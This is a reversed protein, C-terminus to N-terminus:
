FSRILWYCFNRTSLDVFNRCSNGWGVGNVITSKSGSGPGGLDTASVRGDGAGEKVGTCDLNTDNFMAICGMSGCCSSVGRTSFGVHGRVVFWKQCVCFNVM